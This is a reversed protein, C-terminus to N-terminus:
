VRDVWDHVISTVPAVQVCKVQILVHQTSEREGYAAARGPFREMRINRCAHKNNIAQYIVTANSKKRM